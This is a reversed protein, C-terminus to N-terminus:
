LASKWLTVDLDAALHPGAVEVLKQLHPTKLHIDLDEKSRWSEHLYIQNAEGDMPVHPVYSNCGEEARTKAVVEPLYDLVSQPIPGKFKLMALVIVPENSMLPRRTAHEKAHSHAARVLRRQWLSHWVIM